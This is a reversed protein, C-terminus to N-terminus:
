SARDTGRGDTPSRCPPSLWEAEHSALLAGLRARLAPDSACAEDLFAAREAPDAKELALAFLTEESM